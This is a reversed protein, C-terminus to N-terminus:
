SVAAAQEWMERAAAVHDVYGGEETSRRWTTRRGSVLNTSPGSSRCRERADSAPASWKCRCGDDGERFPMPSADAAANRAIGLTTAMFATTLIISHRGSLVTCEAAGVERGTERSRDEARTSRIPHVIVCPDFDVLM